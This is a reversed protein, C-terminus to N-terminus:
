LKGNNILTILTRIASVDAPMHKKIVKIKGSEKGNRDIVIEKEEYEYGYAKKLLAEKAREKENLM